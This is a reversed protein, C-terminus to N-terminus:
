PEPDIPPVRSLPNVGVGGWSGDQTIVIRLAVPEDTFDSFRAIRWYQRLGNRRVWREEVLQTETGVRASIQALTGSLEERKEPRRDAPPVHANISDFNNTWFWQAYKRAIQLSDAPLPQRPTAATPAAPTQAALSGAVAVLTVLTVFPKKSM